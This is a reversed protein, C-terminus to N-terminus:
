RVVVRLASPLFGKVKDTVLWVDVSPQLLFLADYTSTWTTRGSYESRFGSQIKLGTHGATGTCTCAMLACTCNGGNYRTFTIGEFTTNVNGGAAHLCPCLCSCVHTYM